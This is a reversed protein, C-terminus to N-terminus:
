VANKLVESLEYVEIKKMDRDSSNEKLHLYCLPCATVLKVTKCSKLRSKAVRASIEPFNARVGGGAGCCVAKERNKSFEELSFGAKLLLKRPEEYIKLHRGLHCPDHYTIKEAAMKKGFVDKIKDLNDALIQTIHLVDIGEEELKYDHKLVKTCAACPTIITGIGYKNLLEINKKKLNEYDETYGANRAPSGCCVFDDFLLFNIGLKKLIEKYNENLETTVNRM